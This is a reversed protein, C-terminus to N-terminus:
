NNELLQEKEMLQIDLKLEQSKLDEIHENLLRARNENDKLQSEIELIFTIDLKNLGEKKIREYLHVFLSFNDKLDAYINELESMDKLELYDSYLRKVTAAEMDLEIVIDILPKGNRFMQFCQAYLTKNKLEREKKQEDTERPESDGAAAKRNIEGINRLSVHALHAIERTTRGENALKLVLEKKEQKNLVL